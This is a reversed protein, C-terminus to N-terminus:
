RSTFKTHNCIPVQSHMYRYVICVYMQKVYKNTTYLATVKLPIVCLKHLFLITYVSACIRGREYNSYRYYETMEGHYLETTQVLIIVQFM